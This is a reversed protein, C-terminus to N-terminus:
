NIKLSVEHIIRRQSSSLTNRFTISSQEESSKQFEKLQKEYELRQQALKNDVAPSPPDKKKIEEVPKMTFSEQQDTAVSEAQIM